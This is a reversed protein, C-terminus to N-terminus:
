KSAGEGLEVPKAESKETTGPYFTRPFFVKEGRGFSLGGGSRDEGASVLYQGAPLGYIRYVGRDDTQYMPNNIKNPLVAKPDAPALSVQM